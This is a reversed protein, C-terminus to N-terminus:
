PQQVADIVFSRLRDRNTEAVSRAVEATGKFVLITSQRAINHARLFDKHQDFDVRVFAVSHMREEGRLENLVPYQAKCTPCWDAAVDVVVLEGAEQLGLFQAPTYDIWGEAAIALGAGLMLMACVILARVDTM